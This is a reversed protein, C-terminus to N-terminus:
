NATQRFYGPVLGTKKKFVRYFYQLNEYGVASAIAEMNMDSHVLLNLAARIRLDIIYQKLTIGTYAYVIKNIYDPHYHFRDAVQPNTLGHMYNETLFQVIEDGKGPNKVGLGQQTLRQAVLIIFAQLIGNVYPNWHTKQFNYENNMDYLKTRIVQDDPLSIKDPFGEFDTFSIIEHILSPNFLDPQIPYIQKVERHHNTFDFDIGTLLFPDEQDATIDNSVGPQCFFLDGSVASFIQNGITFTGKGKHVYLFYYNYLKRAGTKFGPKCQYLNIYRLFPHIDEISIRIQNQM